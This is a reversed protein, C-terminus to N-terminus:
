KTQYVYSLQMKLKTFIQQLITKHVNFIYIEYLFITHKPNERSEEHTQKNRWFSVDKIRM